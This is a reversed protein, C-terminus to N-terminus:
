DELVIGQHEAIFKVTDIVADKYTEDSFMFSNKRIIKLLTDLRIYKPRKKAKTKKKKPSPM